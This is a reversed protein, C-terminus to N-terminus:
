GPVKNSEKQKSRRREEPRAYRVYLFPVLYILFLLLFTYFPYLSAMRTMEAMDRIKGLRYLSTTLIVIIAVAFFISLRRLKAADSDPTSLFSVRKNKM